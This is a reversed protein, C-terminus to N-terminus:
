KSFKMSKRCWKYLVTGTLSPGNKAIHIEAQTYNDESSVMNYYEERYPFIIIDSKKVLLASGKALDFLSPRKNKIKEVQRTLQSTIIVPIGMKKSLQKFHRVARSTNKKLTRSPKKLLALQIYDIIVMGCNECKEIRASIDNETVTSDDDIIINLTELKKVAANIRMREEGNFRKRQMKYSDVEALYCIMREYIHEAPLELSFIYVTKECCSAYEIAMHLALSTKGMGPRSAICILNEGDLSVLDDFFRPQNSGQSFDTVYENTRMIM